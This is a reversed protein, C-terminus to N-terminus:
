FNIKEGNRVVWKLGKVYFPGGKKCATWISSCPLKKGEETMRNPTLYKALLM